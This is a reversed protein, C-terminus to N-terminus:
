SAGKVLYWYQPYWQQQTMATWGDPGFRGQQNVAMLYDQDPMFLVPPAQAFYAAESTVAKPNSGYM